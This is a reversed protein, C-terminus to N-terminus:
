GATACQYGNRELLAVLKARQAPNGDVVVLRHPQEKPSADVNQTAHTAYVEGTERVPGFDDDSIQGEFDSLCGVLADLVEAAQQSDGRSHLENYLQLSLSVTQLKKTLEDVQQQLNSDADCHTADASAQLSEHAHPREQQPGALEGRLVEVNQPAEM